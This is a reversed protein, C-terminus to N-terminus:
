IRVRHSLWLLCRRIEMCYGAFLQYEINRLIRM